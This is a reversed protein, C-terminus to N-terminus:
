LLIYKSGVYHSIFFGIYIAQDQRGLKNRKFKKHFFFNEYYLYCGGMSRVQLHVQLFMHKFIFTDSRELRPIFKLLFLVPSLVYMGKKINILVFSGLVCM